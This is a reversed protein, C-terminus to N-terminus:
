DHEATTRTKRDTIDLLVGHWTVKNRTRVARAEDQVWVVHGDAHIMRYELSIEAADGLNSEADEAFVRERDEPHVLNRWLLPDRRVEDISYGFLETQGPAVYTTRSISPDEPDSEQIYLIAKNSEVVARLTQWNVQSEYNAEDQVSLGLSGEDIPVATAVFYRIPRSIGKLRVPRAHELLVGDIFGALHALEQTILTEGPRARACLRAAINIAGGRFGEGVPVAEGVDLGIGAKLPLDDSREIGLHLDVAARISARPSDFEALVEDGRTEVVAGARAEVIEDAIAAFRETVVASAEDGHQDTFATYGRLDAIM